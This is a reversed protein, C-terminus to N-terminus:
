ISSQRMKTGGISGGISSGVTPSEITGLMTGLATDQITVSMPVIENTSVLSTPTVAGTIGGINRLKSM